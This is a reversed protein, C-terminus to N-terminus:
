KGSCSFKYLPQGRKESVTVFDNSNNKYAIAEGQPEYHKMKRVVSDCITKGERNRFEYVWDYTRILMSSGDHHIDAGTVRQDGIHTFDCVKKLTMVDSRLSPFKFLTNTDQRTKRIVFMSGDKPNIAFAEANHRESDPYRFRFREGRDSNEPVRYIDFVDRQHNNNGFDAIYVCSGDPCPGVSLDEWDVSEAGRIKKKSLVKADKDIRYLYAGDGSDNHVYYTGPYIRSADIGSIEKLSRDDVTGYIKKECPRIEDKLHSQQGNDFGCAGMLGFVVFLRLNRKMMIKEEM